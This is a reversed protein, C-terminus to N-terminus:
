RCIVHNACRNNIHCGVKANNLTVSLDDMDIAFLYPSLIGGQRFGNSVSFFCSTMTGWKICFTQTRYWYLLIRVLLIPVGRNLLKKFLTWHNVPSNYSPFSQIVHKLVYICHDTSHGMKFGFQNDTTSLYPEM